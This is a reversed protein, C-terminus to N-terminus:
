LGTMTSMTAYIEFPIPEGDMEVGERSAWQSGLLLWTEEKAVPSRCEWEPIECMPGIMQSLGESVDM